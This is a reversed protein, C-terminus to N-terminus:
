FSLVNGDQGEENRKPGSDTSACNKVSFNTLRQLNQKEDTDIQLSGINWM